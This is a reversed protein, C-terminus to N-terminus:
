DSKFLEDPIGKNIQYNSLKIFINGNKNEKEKDEKKGNNTDKNLKKSLKFKKTDVSFVMMDPLGYQIQNGYTYQTLITGNSKGTFESKLVINQKTDIWLKALIVDSTDSLPIVNIITVQSTGIIGMGQSIATFQNTDQLTKPVQDFGQKPVVAIGKSVVKFKDKQKFYIKANIPLMKIFPLDVKINVEVSYDRATQIKKYVEYLLQNTTKNQAPSFSSLLSFLILTLLRRTETSLKSNVNQSQFLKVISCASGKM